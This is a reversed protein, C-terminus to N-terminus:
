PSRTLNHAHNAYFTVTYLLSVKRVTSIISTLEFESTPTPRESARPAGIRAGKAVWPSILLTPVRVGLRNWKFGRDPYSTSDDPAPVGTHPPPVHDFFGGHEDYTVVFATKNWLPGARLAEYVEKLLAEGLRVDHDPHQDSAGKGSTM